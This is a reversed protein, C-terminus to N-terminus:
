VIGLFIWSKCGVPCPLLSFRPLLFLRQSAEDSRCGWAFPCLCFDGWRFGATREARREPVGPFNFGGRCDLSQLCAVPGSSGGKGMLVKGEPWFPCRFWPLPWVASWLAALPSVCSGETWVSVTSSPVSSSFASEKRDRGTGNLGM